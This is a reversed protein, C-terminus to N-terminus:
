LTYVICLYMINQNIGWCFNNWVTMMRCIWLFCYDDGQTLDGQEPLNNGNEPIIDQYDQRRQFRGGNDETEVLFQKGLGLAVFLLFVFLVRMKDSALISEGM